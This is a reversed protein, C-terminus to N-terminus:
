GMTANNKDIACLCDRLHGRHAKLVARAEDIGAGKAVLIAPKIDGQALDLSTEAQAEPVGAITAVVQIARARLKANDPTFNIMLGDHVHGLLIGAQTSIMNLIVKQATGAGLRTSGDVVERETPVEVVLDASQALASDGRNAIAIVTVGRRQAARAFAVAYPTAGSASMALVVDGPKCSEAAGTAALTDDEVGGPLHWTAPIGGAMSVNIQEKPVGFTGPLECADAFAMLGSSGAAAYHLTGGDRLTNAVLEAAASLAPLAAKIGEVAALHSAVM